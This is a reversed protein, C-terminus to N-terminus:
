PLSLESKKNSVRKSRLIYHDPCGFEHEQVLKTIVSSLENYASRPINKHLNVIVRGTRLIKIEMVIDYLDRVIFIPNRFIDQTIKWLPQTTFYVKM